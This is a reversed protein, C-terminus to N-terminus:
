YEATITGLSEDRKDEDLVVVSDLRTGALRIMESTAHLRTATSRGVTAVLVADTAWTGVFEGGFSPDLIVVSLLLDAHAYADALQESVQAAGPPPDRLPGVPMVENAGPVVVVIPVGDPRVTSIGPETVGLQRAAPARPCLDAIVVQRGQQSSAIALRVVAQAVTVVDDTAVVALGAAGRSTTPVANRLHDVLREMDRKRQGSRRRGRLRGVSLRVPTGVAIAIDDRRRLKDSTVAAIIVIVMGVVLGGLLGGIGYQAVAKKASRKVPTAPSLVQSSRVMQATQAHAQLLTTQAYDKMGALANEADTQQKKLGDLNAQQSSSSPEAAVQSVQADISDLHQQAQSIQQNLSDATQQLQQQLYKGLYALFQTAIASARGVAAGDTPGKATITLVDATTSTVTYTGLFSVPTQKLGLQTVAAAAVPTSQAIAADTALETAQNQAGTGFDILVTTAASHGPKHEVALGGGAILGIVTMVLLVPMGRRLASGIFGLTILRANSDTASPLDALDSDDYIPLRDRISSRRWSTTQQPDNV